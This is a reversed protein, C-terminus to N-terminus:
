KISKGEPTFTQMELPLCGPCYGDEYFLINGTKKDVGVVFEKTMSFMNKGPFGVVWARDHWQPFSSFIGSDLEPASVGYRTLQPLSLLFKQAIRKAEVGNIGDDYNIHNFDQQITDVSACGALLLLM